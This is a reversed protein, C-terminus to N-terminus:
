NLSEQDGNGPIPSSTFLSRVISRCAGTIVKICKSYLIGVKWSCSADKRTYIKYHSVVQNSGQGDSGQKPIEDTNEDDHLM